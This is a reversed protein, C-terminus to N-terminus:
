ILSQLVSLLLVSFGSFLLLNIPDLTHVEWVSVFIQHLRFSLFIQTGSLWSLRAVSSEGFPHNIVREPALNSCLPLSLANSHVLQNCVM